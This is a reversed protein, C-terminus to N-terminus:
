LELRYYNTERKRFGMSEYMANAEKRNLNSTLEACDMSRKKAEKILFETLKRAIGRRRYEKDVVVDEIDGPDEIVGAKRMLTEKFYIGAMGVLISNDFAGALFVDRKGLIRKLDPISQDKAKESLQHLLFNIRSATDLSIMRYKLRKFRLEM